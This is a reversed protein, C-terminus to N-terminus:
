SYTVYKSAAKRNKKFSEKEEEKDDEKEDDEDEKENDKEEEDDRHSRSTDMDEDKKRIDQSPAEQDDAFYYENRFYKKNSIVEPKSIAFEVLEFSM